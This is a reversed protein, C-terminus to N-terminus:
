SNNRTSLGDASICPMAGAIRPNGLAGMEACDFHLRDAIGCHADLESIQVIGPNERSIVKVPEADLV